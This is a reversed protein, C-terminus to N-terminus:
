LTVHIAQLEIRLPTRMIMQFRTLVAQLMQMGILLKTKQVGM